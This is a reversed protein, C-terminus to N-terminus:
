LILSKIRQEISGKSSCTYDLQYCRLECNGHKSLCSDCTPHNGHEEDGDDYAACRLGGEGHSTPPTDGMGFALSSGFLLVAIFMKM